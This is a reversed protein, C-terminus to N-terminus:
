NSVENTVKYMRHCWGCPVHEEAKSLVVVYSCTGLIFRCQWDDTEICNEL